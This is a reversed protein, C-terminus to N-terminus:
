KEDVHASLSGQALRILIKEGSDVDDANRLVQKNLAKTVIAYGRNLTGLPSIANLTRSLTALQQSKQEIQNHVVRILIQRLNTLNINAAQLLSKPSQNEFRVLLKDLNSHQYSIKLQLASFARRKLETLKDKNRAIIQEPHLYELRQTFWDVSQYFNGIKDQIMYILANNYQELTEILEHQHPVVLEAAASPTAARMDAVFDAITFDVEHGIGTVIPLNSTYIARAVSEENFSWLDEISGGGRALIIVECEKEQNIAQIAKIIAKASQEGQVQVAYVRIQVLPFRRKLVSLIDRLAAGTASTIIGLSNPYAPLAKKNDQDFLGERSLKLKLEDFKRQLIGIGAEEMHEINLQYDGRPEYIGVRARVLVHMGDEPQFPLKRNANRFMACRVQAYEDKLSFYIHGSAPRAINSIEGEVWILPFNQQLLEKVERNLQQVTFIQRDESEFDLQLSDMKPM